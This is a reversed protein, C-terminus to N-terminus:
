LTDGPLMELLFSAEGNTFGRDILAKKRKELPVGPFANIVQVYLLARTNRLGSRLANATQNKRAEPTIVSIGLHGMSNAEGGAAEFQKYLSQLHVISAHLLKWFDESLHSKDATGDLCVALRLAANEAFSRQIGAWQYSGLVKLSLNDLEPLTKIYYAMDSPQTEDLPEFLFIEEYIKACVSDFENQKDALASLTVLEARQSERRSEAARQDKGSKKPAPVAAQPQDHVTAEISVQGADLAGASRTYGVMLITPNGFRNSVMASGKIVWEVNAVTEPVVKLEVWEGIGFQKRSDPSGDPAHALTRTEIEWKPEDKGHSVPQVFLMLLMWLPRLQASM